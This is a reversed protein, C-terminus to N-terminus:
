ISAFTGNVFMKTGDRRRPTEPAILFVKDGDSDRACLSSARSFQAVSRAARRTREERKDASFSTRSVFAFSRTGVRRNIRKETVDYFNRSDSLIQCSCLLLRLGSPGFGARRDRKQKEHRM